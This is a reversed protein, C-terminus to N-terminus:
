GLSVSGIQLNPNDLTSFEMIIPFNLKFEYKICIIISLSNLM